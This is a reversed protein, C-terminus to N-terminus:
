KKPRKMYWYGIIAVIAIVVIAIVAYIIEMPLAAGGPTPQEEAASVTFSASSSTAGTYADNGAWSAKVSWSGEADPTYSDTFAGGGASESTRTVSSGDPKTYVLTIPAADIAPSIAGSVTVKKTLTVAAPSATASITSSSKVQAATVTFSQAYSKGPLWWPNGVWSATASWKGEVDPTYSNSYVGAVGTRTTQNVVTGDPRKYSVIVEQDQPGSEHYPIIAGTVTIAKGLSVERTAPDITVQNLRQPTGEELAYVVGNTCGIFVMGDAIAPSAELIQPFDFSQIRSMDDANFVYLYRDNNGCYAKHGAVAISSRPLQGMMYMNIVLGTAPDSMAAMHPDPWIYYVKDYAYAATTQVINEWTIDASQIAQYYYLAWIISGNAANFKYWKNDIGGIYIAGNMLCPSSERFDNGGKFEWVKVGTAQDLAYVYSDYYGFFVMGDGVAPKMNLYEAEVDGPVVPNPSGRTSFNWVQDGTAADLAYCHNDNSVIYVTNDIVTPSGTVMYGTQYKWILGGTNADLCYVGHDQSGFYVKGGVVAPSSRICDNTKYRWLLAGTDQDLCYMYADGSGVYVKGGVIACSSRIQLGTQYEWKLKVPGPGASNPNYGNNAANYHFQPWDGTTEQAVASTVLAGTVAITSMLLVLTLLLSYKKSNTM